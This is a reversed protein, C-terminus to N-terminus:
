LAQLEPPPLTYMFKIDAPDLEDPPSNTTKSAGGRLQTPCAYVLPRLVAFTNYKLYESIVSPSLRRDLINMACKLINPKFVAGAQKNWDGLLGEKSWPMIDSSSVTDTSLTICLLFILNFLSMEINFNPAVVIM